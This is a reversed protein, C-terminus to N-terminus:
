KDSDKKNRIITYAGVAVLCVAAVVLIIVYLKANSEDGTQVSDVDAAVEGTSEVVATTTEVVYDTDAAVESRESSEETTAETVEETSEETPTETPVETTTEPETVVPTPATFLSVTFNQVNQSETVTFTASDTENSRIRSAEVTYTGAPLNKVSLTGSTSNNDQPDSVENSVTSEPHGVHGGGSSSGYNFSTEYDMHDTEPNVYVDVYGNADPAVYNIVQDSMIALYSKSSDSGFTEEVGYSVKNDGIGKSKGNEDFYEPWYENLRIHVKIYQTPTASVKYYHAVNGSGDLRFSFDSAIPTVTGFNNYYNDIAIKQERDNDLVFKVASANGFAPNVTSYLGFQGAPVTKTDLADAMTFDHDSYHASAENGANWSAIAKGDSNRLKMSSSALNKCTANDLVNLNITNYPAGLSKSAAKSTTSFNGFVIAGTMIAALGFSAIKSLTTKRM